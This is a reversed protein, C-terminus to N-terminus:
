ARGPHQWFRYVGAAPRALFDAVQRRGGPQQISWLGFGTVQRCADWDPPPPSLLRSYGLLVLREPQAARRMVQLRGCAPLGLAEQRARNLLSHLLQWMGHASLFHTLRNYSGAFSAGDPLGPFSVDPFASTSGAPHLHAPILPMGKKWSRGIYIGLSSAVLLCGPKSGSLGGSACWGPELHQIFQRAFGHISLGGAGPLGSRFWQRRDFWWRRLALGYLYWTLMITCQLWACGMGAGKWRWGWAIFPQV